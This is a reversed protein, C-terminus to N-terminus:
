ATPEEVPVSAPAPAAPEPTSQAPGPAIPIPETMGASHMMWEIDFGEKRIRQDYYFSNRFNCKRSDGLRMPRLPETM